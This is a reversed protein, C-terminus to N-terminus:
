TQPAGRTVSYESVQNSRHDGLNLAKILTDARTTTFSTVLLPGDLQGLGSAEALWAGTLFVRPRSPDTGAM